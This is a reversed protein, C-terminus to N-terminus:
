QLRNSYSAWAKHSEHLKVSLSAKTDKCKLKAAIDGHIRRCMFETTTNEDPFLENLNKFNYHGLVDSLITSFEGIDVVWNVKEVLDSTSLEVDVTYTAGHLSQAPGFEEGLFSHAIMISDRVGLTFGESSYGNVKSGICIFSAIIAFLISMMKMTGKLSRYRRRLFEQPVSHPLTSVTSLQVADIYNNCSLELM